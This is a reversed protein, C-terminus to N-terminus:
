SGAKMYDEIKGLGITVTSDDFTPQTVAAPPPEPAVTPKNLMYGAAGAIAAAAIVPLWQNQPQLPMIVPAPHTVDGLITQRMEEDSPVTEESDWLQKRVKRSEAEQNRQQEEATAQM